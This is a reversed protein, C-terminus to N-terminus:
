SKPINTEIDIKELHRNIENKAATQFSGKIDETRHMRKTDILDQFLKDIIDAFNNM